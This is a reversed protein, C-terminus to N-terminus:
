GVTFGAGEDVYNPTAGASSILASNFSQAVYCKITPSTNVFLTHVWNLNSGSQWPTASSVDSDRFVVYLGRVDNYIQSAGTGTGAKLLIGPALFGSAGPFAVTPDKFYSNNYLALRGASFPVIADAPDANGTISTPDNEEVTQVCSGLAPQSTGGVAIDALFTSRTGSGSQPILPVITNTSTGGVQNWTTDTCTYIATLQATTLGAAPINSTAQDYAIELPDTSIQVTHLETGLNSVATAEEAAKPPRSMRVFDIKRVYSSGGHDNLLATIGAGSGNPRQVPSTGARFVITPNLPKLAANTSGNLYGARDNADPTADFSVLKNSLGVSNYGPDSNQDGDAVFDMINQVTDSGIGVVDTASPAYDAFAPASSVILAIACVGSGVIGLKSIRRM